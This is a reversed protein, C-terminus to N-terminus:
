RNCNYWSFIIGYNKIQNFLEDSINDNIISNYELRLLDNQDPERILGQSYISSYLLFIFLTESVANFSYFISFPYVAFIIAAIKAIMESKFIEISLLYIVYVTLCSILIDGFIVGYSNQTVFNLLHMWIGYGPM